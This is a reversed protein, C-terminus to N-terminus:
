TWNGQGDSTELSSAVWSGNYVQVETASVWATGNYYQIKNAIPTPPPAPSPNSMTLTYSDSGFVIAGSRTFATVYIRFIYSSGPSLGSVVQTGSIDTSYFSTGDATADSELYYVTSGYNVTSWTVTAQTGDSSSTATINPVLVSVGSVTSLTTATATVTASTNPTSPNANKAYLSWTYSTNATLGSVTAYTNTTTPSSITGPGSLYYTVPPYGGASTSGTWTLSVTGTSTATATFGLPASPAGAVPANTVLTVSDSGFLTTNQYSGLADVYWSYTGGPSLGSVVLTGSQAASSIGPGTVEVFDLTVGASKTVSWTVTAATGDTSSTATIDATVTRVILTTFTVTATSSSYGSDVAYVSVTYGTNPSLGTITASTGSSYNVTGGTSSVVYTAGSTASATWSVSASSSTISSATLNTPPQVAKTTGSATYTRSGRNNTVVLTYTYNTGASLTASTTTDISDSLGPPFYGSESLGVGSLTYYTNGNNAGSPATVIGVIDLTTYLTTPYVTISGSPLTTPSSDLDFDSASVSGGNNSASLVYEYRGASPTVTANVTASQSSGDGLTQTGSLPSGTGSISWYTTGGGSPSTVSYSLSVNTPSTRTATLSVSPSPTPPASTSGSTTASSFRFFGSTDQGQASVTFSYSTSPSLGTYTRSGSANTTLQEAGTTSDIEVVRSALTINTWTVTWSISISTSTASTVSISTSVSGIAM